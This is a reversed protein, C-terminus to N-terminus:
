LVTVVAEATVLFGAGVAIALVIGLRWLFMTRFDHVPGEPSPPRYVADVDPPGQEMAIPNGVRARRTSSRVYWRGFPTRRHPIIVGESVGVWRPKAWAYAGSDIWARWVRVPNSSVLDKGTEDDALFVVDPRALRDAGRPDGWWVALLPRWTRPIPNNVLTCYGLRPADRGQHLDWWAILLGFLRRGAFLTFMAVLSIFLFSPPGLWGFM